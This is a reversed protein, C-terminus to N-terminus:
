QQILVRGALIAGASQHTRGHRAPAYLAVVLFQFLLKAKSMIFPPTPAAKMMVRRQTDRGVAKEYTLAEFTPAIFFSREILLTEGARLSCAERCGSSHSTM